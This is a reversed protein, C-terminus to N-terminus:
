HREKTIVYALEKIACSYAKDGKICSLVSEMLKRPTSATIPQRSALVIVKEESREMDPLLAVKILLDGTRMAEDPLVQTKNKPWFNDSSAKNPFIPALNGEMDQALVYVYADKILTISVTVEQGDIFEQRNLSARVYNKYEIEERSVGYLIWVDFVTGNKTKRTEYYPQDEEFFGQSVGLQREADKRACARAQERSTQDMCSATVYVYKPHDRNPQPVWAPRIGQLPTPASCAMLMIMLPAAAKCFPLAKM